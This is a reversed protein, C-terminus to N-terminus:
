DKTGKQGSRQNKRCKYCTTDKEALKYCENCYGGANIGNVFTNASMEEDTKKKCKLCKSSDDDGDDQQHCDGCVQIKGGRGDDEM